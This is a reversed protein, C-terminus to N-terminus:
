EALRHAIWGFAHCSPVGNIGQLTSIQQRTSLQRGWPLGAGVSDTAPSSLIVIARLTVSKTGSNVTPTRGADRVTNSEERPEEGAKTLVPLQLHITHVKACAPMAVGSLDQNTLSPYLLGDAAKALAERAGTADGRLGHMQYQDSGTELKAHSTVVSDKPHAM